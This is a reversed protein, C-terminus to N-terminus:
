PECGSGFAFLVTLLDADDVTSDCNTDVRGLEDGQGGFAFLVALLDADDVCGSEDVDGNHEVCRSGTDLLFASSPRRTAANYGIGVIYRGNPSIGYVKELISGDSLLNAYVQNLDQMGTQATWRFARFGSSGDHCWGVVIKGDDSVDSAESWIYGGIVGLNQMTGNQWRFARYTETEDDAIRWSSGVVVSGDASVASAVSSTDYGPLTGLNQMTGNQWRFARYRNGSSNYSGGVVVEGNASIDAAYSSDAFGQLVGLDQMTGNQWRFARTFTFQDTLTLVVVSGDASVGNAVSRLDYGALTGLDQMSGNIWRFARVTGPVGFSNGVIVDGSSSVGVAESGSTYGQLTGLDQMVGNQWRFARFTFNSDAASGVVIANNSVDYAVSIRGGFDGLWTLSQTAGVTHMSACVLLLLITRWAGMGFIQERKM